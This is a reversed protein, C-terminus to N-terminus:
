FLRQEGPLLDRDKILHWSNGTNQWIAGTEVDMMTVEIDGALNWDYLLDDVSIGDLRESIEELGIEVPVGNAFFERATLPARGEFEFVFRNM